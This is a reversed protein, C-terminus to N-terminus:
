YYINFMTIVSVVARKNPNEIEITVCRLYRIADANSIRLYCKETDTRQEVMLSALRVNACHRLRFLYMEIKGMKRAVGKCDNERIRVFCAFDSIANEFLRRGPCKRLCNLSELINRGDANWFLPLLPPM